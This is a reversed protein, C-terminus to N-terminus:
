VRKSPYIFAYLYELLVVKSGSLYRRFFSWSTLKDVEELSVISLYMLLRIFFVLHLVFIKIWPSDSVLAQGCVWNCLKLSHSLVMIQYFHFFLALAILFFFGILFNMGQATLEMHTM